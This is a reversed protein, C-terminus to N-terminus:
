QYSKLKGAHGRAMGYYALLSLLNRKWNVGIHDMNLRVADFDLM